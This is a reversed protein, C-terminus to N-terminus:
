NICLSVSRIFRNIYFVAAFLASLISVIALSLRSIGVNAAEFMSSAKSRNDRAVSDEIGAALEVPDPLLRAVDLTISRCGSLRKLTNM